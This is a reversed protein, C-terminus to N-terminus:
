TRISPPRRPNGDRARARRSRREFYHAIAALPLCNLVRDPPVGGKRAVDIGWRVMGIEATSHADPNIALMCGLELARRHYRWDLDLRQPSCNIEVVVDHEACAQLVADIDLKYGERRLLRRGTMHGLITTRPNAVAKVIRETQETETLAFRSHVSAVVFDFQALIDDPYDLSGDRLIDSEIGKFIRFRTGYRANLRDAQRVQARVEKVSLGGAYAAAKSHDAVGFYRYGAQRTAEAMEELTATGDSADTHAHLIGRIDGLEVLKPLVSQTARAIADEDDRSEPAIFPLGLAAYVDSEDPCILSRRGKIFDAASLRLKKRAALAELEGFHRAPGTAYLLALGYRRPEAVHVTVAEEIEFTEGTAGEAVLCLDDVLECGRRYSGAPQMRTLDPRARALRAIAASLISWSENRLHFGGGRRHLDINQLIKAQAAASFGAIGRLRDDRCAREVDELRTVGIQAHLRRAKEPGIGPVAAVEILGAPIAARLNELSPDTGSQRLDIIKAAIAAGIGPLSRLTGDNIIDDLPRDLHRLTAAAKVYARARFPQEDALELLRGYELLLAAIADAGLKALAANSRSAKM